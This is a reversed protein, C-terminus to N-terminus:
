KEKKSNKVTTYPEPKETGKPGHRKQILNQNKKFYSSL